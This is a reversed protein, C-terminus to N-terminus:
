AELATDVAFAFGASFPSSVGPFRGQLQRPLQDQCLVVDWAPTETSGLLARLHSRVWGTHGQPSLHILLHLHRAPARAALRHRPASCPGWSELCVRHGSAPAHGALHTMCSSLRGPQGGLRSGRSADHLSGLSSAVVGTRGRGRGERSRQKPKGSDNQGM